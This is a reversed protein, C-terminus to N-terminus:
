ENQMGNFGPLQIHTLDRFDDGLRGTGRLVNGNHRIIETNIHPDVKGSQHGSLDIRENLSFGPAGLETLDLEFGDSM